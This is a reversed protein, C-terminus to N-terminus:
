HECFHEIEMHGHYVHLDTGCLGCYAVRVRVEDPGPEVPKAKGLAFTKDCTYYSAKM